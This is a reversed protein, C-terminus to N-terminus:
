SVSTQSLAHKYIVVIVASSFPTKLLIFHFQINSNPLKKEPNRDSDPEEAQELRETLLVFRSLFVTGYFRLLRTIGWDGSGESKKLEGRNDREKSRREMKLESFAECLGCTITRHTCSERNKILEKTRVM